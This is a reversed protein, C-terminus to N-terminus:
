VWLVAAIDAAIFLALAAEWIAWGRWSGLSFPRFPADWGRRRLEPLGLARAHVAIRESLAVERQRQQWTGVGASITAAIGAVAVAVRVRAPLEPRTLVTLLFAQAAVILAPMQGLQGDTAIRRGELVEFM